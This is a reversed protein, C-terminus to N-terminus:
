PAEHVERVAAPEREQDETVKDSFPPVIEAVVLSLV